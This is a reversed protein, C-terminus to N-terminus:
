TKVYGCAPRKRIRPLKWLPATLGNIKEHGVIKFNDATKGEAWETAAKNENDTLAMKTAMNDAPFYMYVNSGDSITVAKKGEIEVEFRAKKGSIFVKSNIVENNPSITSTSDYSLGKIAKASKMLDAVTLATAQAPSKEGAKNATPQESSKGCGTLLLSGAVLVMIIAVAFKKMLNGEEFNKSENFDLNILEDRGICSYIISLFLRAVIGAQFL